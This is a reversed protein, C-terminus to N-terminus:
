KNEDTLRKILDPSNGPIPRDDRLCSNEMADLLILCCAAAHGLHHAGSDQALDEGDYWQQLHRLAAGVYISALVENERWNYPGYKEAGDKMAMSTHVLGSPPVLHLPPKTLGVLDKPNVGAM